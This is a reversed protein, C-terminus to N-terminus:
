KRRRTPRKQKPAVNQQPPMRGFRTSDGVERCTAARDGLLGWLVPRRAGGRDPQNESRVEYFMFPLCDHQDSDQIKGTLVDACMWSHTEAPGDLFTPWRDFYALGAGCKCRVRQSYLLQSPKYPIGAQRRAIVRRLWTPYVIRRVSFYLPKLFRERVTGRFGYNGIDNLRRTTWRPWHREHGRSMMRWGWERTRTSM